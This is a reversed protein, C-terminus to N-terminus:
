QTLGKGYFTLAPVPTNLYLNKWKEVYAENERYLAVQMQRV